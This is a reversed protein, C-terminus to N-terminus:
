YGRQRDVLRVPKKGAAFGDLDETDFGYAKGRELAHDLVRRCEAGFPADPVAEEPRSISPIRALGQIEAIFEAKHANIWADAKQVYAQIEPKM